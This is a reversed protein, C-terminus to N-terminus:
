FRILMLRCRCNYHTHLGPIPVGPDSILFLRDHLPKCIPCVFENERTKWQLLTTITQGIRPNNLDFPDTSAAQDTSSVIYYNLLRDALHENASAHGTMINYNISGELLNSSNVSNQENVPILKKAKNITAKNLSETVLLVALSSFMYSESKEITDALVETAEANHLNAALLPVDGLKKYFKNLGSALANSIRGFFKGTYDTVIKEIEEIDSKTLYSVTNLSDAVYASGLQYAQTSGARMIDYVEKETINKFDEFKTQYNFQDINDLYKDSFLKLVTNLDVLVRKEIKLAEKSVLTDEHRRVERLKEQDPVSQQNEAVLNFFSM